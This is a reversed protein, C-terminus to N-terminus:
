RWSRTHDVTEIQTMVRADHTDIDSAEYGDDRMTILQLREPLAGDFPSFAGLALACQSSKACASSGTLQLQDLAHFPRLQQMNRQPFPRPVSLAVQAAAEEDIDVVAGGDVQQFFLADQQSSRLM